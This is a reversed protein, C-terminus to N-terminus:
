GTRATVIWGAAPLAVTGGHRYGELVARLRRSAEARAAPPLDAFARAAPGIRQFYDAADEVPDAGVGTVMAYDVKDFAIERWGAGGLIGAVREADAFAFPGPAHPDPPVAPPPLVSALASAWENEGRARFCSFRLSAGGAATSRLHAFAQIPDAFFMVGHRSILLDPRTAGANWRAADALEFRANRLAACRARAEGLLDPSVDVGVVQAQPNAAALRVTVEGAGCGIDLAAAFSGAGDVLRDTLVGFSRDTRQWEQTWTQGLRGTWEEGGHAAPEPMPM